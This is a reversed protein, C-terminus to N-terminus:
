IKLNEVDQCERLVLGELLGADSIKMTDFGFSDMVSLVIASGPIILDERGKELTLIKKREALKLGWLREYMSEVAGRTLTYNNIRDPDYTPLDQDLAALTTVTGATGVLVTGGPLAGRAGKGSFVTTEPRMKEKLESIVTSIEAEMDMIEEKAPPDSKLYGETLHVVGMEMSWSGMLETGRTLIFETSGGGIDFVFRVGSSGVVSLVGLVALRAEEQGGIVSVALGTRKLVESLFRDRNVARRVVSTAVAFIKDVGHEDISRKFGELARITREASESDIGRDESYNGGLRTIVRKYLLTRLGSPEPEAILLRLTNTGVDVSAYRM